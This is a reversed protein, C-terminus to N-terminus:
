ERKLNLIFKLSDGFIESKNQAGLEDFGFSNTGDLM